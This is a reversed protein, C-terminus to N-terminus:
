QSKFLHSSLSEPLSAVAQFHHRQFGSTLYPSARWWSATRRLAEPQSRVSVNQDEFLACQSMNKVCVAAAHSPMSTDVWGAELLALPLGSACFRPKIPEWQWHDIFHNCICKCDIGLVPFPTRTKMLKHGLLLKKHAHTHTHTFLSKFCNWKRNLHQWKKNRHIKCKDFILVGFFRM